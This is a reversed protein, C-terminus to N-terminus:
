VLSLSTATNILRVVMTQSMFLCFDLQYKYSSKLNKAKVIEEILVEIKSTPERWRSGKKKQINKGITGFM